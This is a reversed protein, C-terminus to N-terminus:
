LSCRSAFEPASTVLLSLGAEYNDKWLNRRVETAKGLYTNDLWTFDEEDFYFPVNPARHNGPQPLLQLYPWWFSDVGLLQQEILFFILARTQLEESLHEQRLLAGLASSRQVQQFSILLQPPCFIIVSDVDIGQSTSDIQLFLGADSRAIDVSPHIIGGHEEFWELFGTIPDAM